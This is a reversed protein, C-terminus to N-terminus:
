AAESWDKPLKGYDNITNRVLGAVAAKLLKHYLRGAPSQKDHFLCDELLTDTVYESRMAERAEDIHLTKDGFDLTYGDLLNQVGNSVDQETATYGNFSKPLPKSLDVNM